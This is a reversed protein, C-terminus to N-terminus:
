SLIEKLENYKINANFVNHKTIIKTCYQNLVTVSEFFQLIEDKKLTIPQTKNGMENYYMQLEIYDSQLNKRIRDTIYDAMENLNGVIAENM